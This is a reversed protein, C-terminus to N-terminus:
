QCALEYREAEMSVMTKKEIKADDIGLLEKVLKSFRRSELEWRYKRYVAIGKELVAQSELPDAYVKLIAAALSAANEPEFFHLAEEDFYDCIGKTHPAIVPKEMSLYEFIRTPMNIETFSSRNNPIIGLDIHQVAEAITELPVFGHYHVIDGLKLAEVGERFRPVFDGEGFVHFVLNPIDQRVLAIAKLAVDLGHREVITGHYMLVFEDHKTPAASTHNQCFITEQPSNMIIHIKHAPCGRAVFLEHFALNPTLVLDALRISFRELFILLRVVPHRPGLGYKTRYVEPMPDHLDLIVKAGMLKPVLSAVILIDPMNHVQVAQYRQRLHLRALKFFALLIFGAYQWLYSLKGARKQRLPLRYIWVGNVVERRRARRGHLCIVDVAMGEQTLAEAEYRVRSDTLYDAFVIMAVKTM